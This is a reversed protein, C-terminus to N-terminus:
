EFQWNFSDDCGLFADILIIAPSKLIFHKSINSKTLNILKAYNASKVHKKARTITIACNM